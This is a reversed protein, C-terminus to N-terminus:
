RGTEVYTELERPSKSAPMTTGPARLRAPPGFNSAVQEDERKRGTKSFFCPDSSVACFIVESSLCGFSLMGVNSSKRKLHRQTGEVSNIVKAEAM